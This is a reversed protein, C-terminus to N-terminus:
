CAVERDRLIRPAELGENVSERVGAVGAGVVVERPLEQMAEGGAEVGDAGDEAVRVRQRGEGDRARPQLERLVVEVKM